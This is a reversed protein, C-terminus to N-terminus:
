RRKGSQAQWQAKPVSTRWAIVVYVISMLTVVVVFSIPGVPEEHTLLPTSALTLAVHGLTLLWGGRTVPSLSFTPGKGSRVFWADKSM